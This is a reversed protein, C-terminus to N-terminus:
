GTELAEQVNLWRTEAAESRNALEIRKADLAGIEDRGARAFSLKRPLIM